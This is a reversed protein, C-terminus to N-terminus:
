AVAEVARVPAPLAPELARHLVAPPQIGAERFADLVRLTVDTEFAKEHQTDLVYAKLRLRLALYDGVVVQNVLVVLPNPLYVYRSVVAAERVIEAAKEADQDVGILFDLAIQMNVVGYNGCSTVENLLMNNPITVVSDDLTRLKVSRLGISIIDGYEGGFTVRDGVQFPRDFIIMVGAVLSSVLDKTAFGIAVAATGGLIALLQDSIRFSLLICAAITLIYVGFRIFAGFKQFTLRYDGFARGLQDIISGVFRMLLWATAIVLLSALIGTWRVMGALTTVADSAIPEVASQAGAWTPLLCLFLTATAVLLRETRTTM